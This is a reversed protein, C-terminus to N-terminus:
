QMLGAPPVDGPKIFRVIMPNVRDRAAESECTLIWAAVDPCDRPQLYLRLALDGATGTRAEVAALRKEFPTV